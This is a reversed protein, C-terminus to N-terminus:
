IAAVFTITKDASSNGTLAVGVVTTLTGQNKTIVGNAGAYLADGAAINNDAVNDTRYLAGNGASVAVRGSAYAPINELDNGAASLLLFGIAKDSSSGGAPKVSGDTDVTVVIGSTLKLVEADTRFDGLEKELLTSKIPLDFTTGGNLRQISKVM